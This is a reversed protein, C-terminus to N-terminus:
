LHCPVSCSGHKGRVYPLDVGISLDNFPDGNTSARAAGLENIRFRKGNYLMFGNGDKNDFYFPIKKNNVQIDGTNLPPYKFLDFTRKMIPTDPFRM